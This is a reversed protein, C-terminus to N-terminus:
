VLVTEDLSAVIGDLSSAVTEYSSGATGDLHEMTENLSPTVREDFSSVATEDLSVVLLERQREKQRLPLALTQGKDTEDKCEAFRPSKRQVTHGNGLLSSPDFHFMTKVAEYGEASFTWKGDKEVYAPKQIFAEISEVTDFLQKRPAKFWEVHGKGCQECNKVRIKYHILSAQIIKEAQQAGRFKDKTEYILKTNKRYCNGSQRLRNEAGVNSFGIKFLGPIKVHQLVYVTGEQVMNETPYENMAKIVATENRLSLARKPPIVDGLGPIRYGNGQGGVQIHKKANITHIAASEVKTDETARKTLIEVVSEAESESDPEAYIPGDSLPDPSMADGREDFATFFIDESSSSPSSSPSSTTSSPPTSDPSSSVSSAPSVSPSTPSPSSATTTQQEIWERFTELAVEIHRKCHTYTIFLELKGYLIDTEPCKTMNKFEDFLEKVEAHQNQLWASNQCRRSRDKLPARCRLPKTNDHRSTFEDLSAQIYALEEFVPNQISNTTAM